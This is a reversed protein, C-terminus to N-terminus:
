ISGALGQIDIATFANLVAIYLFNNELGASCQNVM